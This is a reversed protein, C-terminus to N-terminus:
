KIDRKITEGMQNWNNSFVSIIGYCKVFNIIVNYNDVFENFTYMKKINASSIFYCKVNNIIFACIVM